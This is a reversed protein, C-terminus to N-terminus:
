NRVISGFFKDSRKQHMIASSSLELSISEFYMERSWGEVPSVQTALKPYFQKKFYQAIEAITMGHRVPLAHWGVFSRFSSDLMAGEVQTGGIPNPRDLVIIEIDAEECAEMCLAMTWIFTYYRSGVDQLDIVLTDLGKLMGPTPKRHEGYLSHIPVGIREDQLGKWEIMNDQTHGWLGHQPGFVAALSFSNEKEAAGLIDIIHDFRSDISAQNCLLGIRKGQLSSFESEILKELGTKVKM